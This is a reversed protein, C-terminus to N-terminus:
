EPRPIELCTAPLEISAAPLAVTVLGTTPNVFRLLERADRSVCIVAADMGDSALADAYGFLWWGSM